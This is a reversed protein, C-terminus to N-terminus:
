FHLDKHLGDGKLNLGSVGNLIDFSFDLVLLSGVQGAAGSKQPCVAPHHSCERLSCCESLALGTSPVDTPLMM